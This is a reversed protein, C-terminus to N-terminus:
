ASGWQMDSALSPDGEVKRSLHTKRRGIDAKVQVIQGSRDTLTVTQDFEQVGYREEYMEPWHKKLWEVYKPSKDGFKPDKPPPPPCGTERHHNLDALLRERHLRMERKGDEILTQSRSASSVEENSKKVMEMLGQIMQQQSLFMARMEPSMGELVKENVAAQPNEKELEEQVKKQEELLLEQGKALREIEEETTKPDGKRQSENWQRMEDVKDAIIDSLHVWKERVTIAGTASDVDALIKRGSKVHEGTVEIPMEIKGDDEIEVTGMLTDESM